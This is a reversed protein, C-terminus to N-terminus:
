MKNSLFEPLKEIMQRIEDRVQVFIALKDNEPVNQALKAPDEFGIHIKKVCDPFCPCNEDAHGCLTVVFDFDSVPLESVTKSQQSSIDIGIEQMVKIAYPNIGHAEIGASFCEYKDSHFHRCFGEAM